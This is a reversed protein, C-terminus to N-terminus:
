SATNKNSLRIGKTRVLELEARWRGIGTVNREHGKDFGLPSGPNLRILVLMAWAGSPSLQEAELVSYSGGWSPLPALLATDAKGAAVRSGVRRTPLGEAAAGIPIVM